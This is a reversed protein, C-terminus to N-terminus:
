GVPESEVTRVIADFIGDWTFETAEAAVPLGVEKAAASTVPSISALRVRRGIQSLASPSLMRHLARAISPSSLGIWDLQGNEIRALDAEHFGDIDVNEYVVVQEITAGAAELERPLIDRGRNARAWLVRKGAALPKLAAALEEARYSEPILDARLHYAELAQATSPGICAIQAAGLTRADLGREWQRALFQEVGNASTFVIWDFTSLRDIAADVQEWSAPPRIEITPLLVPLAGLEHCRAVAGLAQDIPRTIGIQKGFLPRNEFWAIKERMSVCEGVVILSPSRLAAAEVASVITELTGTVTRQLPTTGRSIVAVPTSAAKGEALLSAVIAGLRHLGMYFVVTGPFRALVEFDLATEAKQPDEYGTVFAVASAMKRHTVSIGAYEAAAVAATTGPVVEFPIGADVLAAAEESGRGFIFPDGGKLRVVTKGSQAAEVLRRNIEDQKLILGDPGPARCTREARASTHRLIIPNVLGDYLVVDAKQLCELGKLTLLGPDGPGAGVLYVKGAASM